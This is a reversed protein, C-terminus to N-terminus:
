KLWKLPEKRHPVISLPKQFQNTTVTLAIRRPKYVFPISHKWHYEFNKDFSRATIIDEIIVVNEANRLEANDSFNYSGTIVTSKDVIIFKDHFLKEANDVRMPINRRRLQSLSVSNQSENVSDLLVYLSVGRVSAKGLAECITKNTLQFAAVQIIKKAGDIQKSIISACQGGPSFYCAVEAASSRSCEVLFVIIFISLGSAVKNFM